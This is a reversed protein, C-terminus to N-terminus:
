NETQWFAYGIVVEQLLLGKLTNQKREDEFLEEKHSNQHLLKQIYHMNM